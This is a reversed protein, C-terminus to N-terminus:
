SESEADDHLPFGHLVFFLRDLGVAVGSAPPAKQMSAKLFEPFPHPAKGRAQRKKSEEVFREELAAVDQLETCGNCLEIGQSYAEFRQAYTKKPSLASLTAQRPPYDKLFTVHGPETSFSPEVKELMLKFYLDDWNDEASISIIDKKKIQERLTETDSAQFIDIGTAKLFAEKVTLETFKLPLPSLTLFLEQIQKRTKEYNAFPEYFELM